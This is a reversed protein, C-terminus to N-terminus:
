WWSEKISCGLLKTDRRTSILEIFILVPSNGVCFHFQTLKKVTYPKSVAPWPFPTVAGESDVCGRKHFIVNSNPGTHLYIDM